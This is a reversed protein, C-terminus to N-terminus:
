LPIIIIIIICLSRSAPGVYAEYSIRNTTIKELIAVALAAVPDVAMVVIRPDSLALLTDGIYQLAAPTELNEEERELETQWGM